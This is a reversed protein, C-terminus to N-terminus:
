NIILQNFFFIRLQSEHFFFQMSCKCSPTGMLVSDFFRAQPANQKMLRTQPANPKMLFRAQPAHKEYSIKKKIM